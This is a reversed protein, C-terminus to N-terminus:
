NGAEMLRKVARVLADPGESKAVIADAGADRALAELSNAELGSVLVIRLQGLRVTKRFLAALKDGQISPMNVDIVVVQPQARLILSTAGIPSPLDVVRLGAATLARKMSTRAVDSDDIVLVDASAESVSVLEGEDIRCQRSM